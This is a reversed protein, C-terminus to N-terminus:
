VAAPMLDLWVREIHALCAARQDPGHVVRWGAPAERFAPWLSYQGAANVLALFLHREDDFPNVHQDDMM